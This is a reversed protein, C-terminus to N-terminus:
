PKVDNFLIALTRRTKNQTSEYKDFVLGDSSRYDVYRLLVNHRLLRFSASSMYFLIDWSRSARYLLVFDCSNTAEDEDRLAFTAFGMEQVTAHVISDLDAVVPEPERVICVNRGSTSHLHTDAGSSMSEKQTLACGALMVSLVIWHWKM